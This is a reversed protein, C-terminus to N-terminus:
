SDDVNKCGLHSARKGQDMRTSGEKRYTPDQVRRWREVDGNVAAKDM